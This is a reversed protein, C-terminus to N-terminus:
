TVGEVWTQRWLRGGEGKQDSSGMWRPGLLSCSLLSPGAMKRPSVSAVTSLVGVVQCKERSIREEVGCEHGKSGCHRQFLLSLCKGRVAKWAWDQGQSSKGRKQSWWSGLRRDRKKPGRSSKAGTGAATKVDEPEKGCSTGEQVIRGNGRRWNQLRIDGYGCVPPQTSCVSLRTTKFVARTLKHNWGWRPEWPRRALGCNGPQSGM